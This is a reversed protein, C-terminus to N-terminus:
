RPATRPLDDAVADVIQAQGHVLQDLLALAKQNTEYDHEAAIRDHESQRNQSLLILPAAYAAQTSFALNLLIFPYPDWKLRLALLNLGIWAAVVITQWVIFQGSGLIAVASDAARQARTRDDHRAQNAPHRHLHLNM